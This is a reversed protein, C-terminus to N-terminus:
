SKRGAVVKGIKTCTLDFDREWNWGDGSKEWYGTITNGDDSFASTFRKGLSQGGVSAQMAWKGVFVDLQKFGLFPKPDHKQAQKKSSRAM